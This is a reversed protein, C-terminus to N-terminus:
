KKYRANLGTNNVIYLVRPLRDYQITMLFHVHDIDLKKYKENLRTNNVIYEPYGIM